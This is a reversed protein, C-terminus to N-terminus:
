RRRLQDLLQQYSAAKAPRLALILELTRIAEDRNGADLFLEGAADLEAIAEEIKGAHRYLDALRRRVLPRGPNDRAQTKLFELAADRRGTELLHTIYNELETMAQAEQGLRFNLEILRARAQEDDPQLIRIQEFIRLAQRWDLSQLDIDAMRHMIKVRWSRDANTQQALRLAETYTSRANDLDALSYYVDALDMYELLAEEIHDQEILLDILRSRPKFDMPALEVVRHYLDIARRTEGRASYTQAVALLKSIALQLQGQKILLEAMFIHLPLYTPAYQVAYFAEEMASRLYGENALDNIKALSEVIQSSRSQIIVEALPVIAQNDVQSPLQKRARQVQERWDPQTLLSAVNDCLRVQAEADNEHRQEEVLPEYLQFLDDRRDAPAMSSDAVRLAELYEVAAERLRGMSRLTQGLMLRSALAFDPHKMASQLYRFANDPQGIQILLAGLTFHAAPHDLGVEMARQLENAAHEYKGQTHLDVVQTLHLLIRTRDVVKPTRLSGTNRVIAQLGRSATGEPMGFDEDFLMGALITLARQQAEAIPEQRKDPEAVGTDAKKLQAMRLSATAGRSRAPLPLSKFDRLMTLAQTARADGPILQMARNVARVAKEMDSAHQYLSALALYEEVALEKNGMHEYVAALRARAQINEPNLLTVRKWNEIAKQLDKNKLYVEAAQLSAAQARELNGLRECIQAIKELPIPDERALRAAKLYSRLSEEYEQLEFLALGLSTLAQVNDPACEVAKRYHQVAAEWNQDWAASHGQNMALHLADLSGTM